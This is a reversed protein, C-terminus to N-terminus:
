FADPALGMVLSADAGSRSMADLEAPLRVLVTDAYFTAAAVKGAVVETFAPDAEAMRAAEQAAVVLLAGILWDGTSMLIRTTNLAVAHLRDHEGNVGLLAWQGALGLMGKVVDTAGTVQALAGHLRPDTVSELRSEVDAALVTWAAYRNKLVKRFVFDLGQIATTGEYIQDILADRLHQEVPYDKLYGSGGYVNLARILMEYSRESGVGKVIPLLLDNVQALTAEDHELDPYGRQTAEARDQWRATYVVLARMGEAYAKQLLLARRVDPHHIIPVKPGGPGATVDSGQVRTKAYELAGLYATSLTAIAKTGVMMRAYEIVRFMQAIGDHVDGVLSGVAPVGNAGFSLECTASATMGHKHEMGTAFVGNRAGLAGTDLDVHFKPVAFLSLGKTGPGGAGDVGVPRALVLHVINEALDHDGSTIFRKVGELHWTGDAQRRAVTRGAGVDSGADPETLVMTAGWQRDVMIEALRQQQATGLEHLIAAFLPGAMYFFLPPNAGLITEAVTWRVTPPAAGGGLAEPLDLRWFESDMLARYASKVEPPLTVTHTSPDFEPEVRDGTAFVDALPGEALRAVETLLDHVTVPDFEPWADRVPQPAPFVDNLLFEQDPTNARYHSM